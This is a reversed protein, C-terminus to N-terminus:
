PEEAPEGYANAWAADHFAVVCLNEPDLANVRMGTGAHARAEEVLKATAKLDAATPDRQRKQAFSVACALDPRTRGALWGVGGIASM